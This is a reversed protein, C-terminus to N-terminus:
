FFLAFEGREIARSWKEKRYEESRALEIMKGVMWQPKSNEIYDIEKGADEGYLVTLAVKTEEKMRKFQDDSVRITSLHAFDNRIRCLDKIRDTIHCDNDKVLKLGSHLLVKGLITADWERENGKELKSIYDRHGKNNKFGQSVEKMLAEGSKVTSQWKNNEHTEDWHKKFLQRLYKPIIDLVIQSIKLFNEIAPSEEM